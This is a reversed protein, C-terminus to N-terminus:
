IVVGPQKDFGFDWCLDYVNNSEGGYVPIGAVLMVSGGNLIYEELLDKEPETLDVQPSNVLIMDADEPISQAGLLSIGQIDYNAKTIAAKLCDTFELEEHGLLYYIKPLKDRTVYNIASTIQGEGDFNLNVNGGAVSESTDQMYIDTIRVHRSRDGCIVILDNNHINENTYQAAFGPYIDPNKKVVKVHDSLKEYKELLTELIEDEQGAQVIWNLTVDENLRTVIAKTNSTFTFIKASSIDYHTLRDPLANAMLNVAIVIALVIATLIFSYSGMRFTRTNLSELFKKM